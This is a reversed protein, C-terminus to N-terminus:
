EIVEDARALLARPVTLGLAKATKLNIILNFKTPLQIALAAPNAGKFFSRRLIGCGRFLETQDSGYSLLGGSQAWTPEGGVMPLRHSAALSIILDRNQKTVAHGTVVLGGDAESGFSTIAATIESADRVPLPLLKITM